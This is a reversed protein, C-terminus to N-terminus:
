SIERRPPQGEDTRQFKVKRACSTCIRKLDNPCAANGCHQCQTKSKPLKDKEKKNGEGHIRELCPGCRRRSPGQSDHPFLQDQEPEDEDEEPKGLIFDIKKTM